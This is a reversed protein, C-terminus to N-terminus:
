RTVGCTGFGALSAMCLLVYCWCSESNLLIPANANSIVELQRIEPHEDQRRCIGRKIRRCFMYWIIPLSNTTYTAAMNSWQKLLTHGQEIQWTFLRNVKDISRKSPSCSIISLGLGYSHSVKYGPIARDQEFTKESVFAFWLAVRTGQM